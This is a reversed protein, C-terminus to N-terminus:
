RSTEPVIQASSPKRVTALLQTAALRRLPSRRGGLLEALWAASGPVLRDLPDPIVAPSAYEVAEVELGAGTLLRELRRRHTSRSRPVLPSGQGLLRLGLRSALFLVFHRWHVYPSYINGVGVVARGGPRLVRALERVVSGPDDAYGLVGTAVVADFREDDFPVREVRGLAFHDGVHPLRARALALMRESGDVGWVTWGRRDLEACLRGPGLGMDLVDGPGDGLLRLVAALRSQQWHGRPGRSEYAADYREALRDFAAIADLKGKV